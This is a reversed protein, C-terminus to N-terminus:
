AKHQKNLKLGLGTSQSKLCAFPLYGDGESDSKEDSNDSDVNQNANKLVLNRNFNRLKSLGSKIEVDKTSPTNNLFNVISEYTLKEAETEALSSGIKPNQEEFKSIDEFFWETFIKCIESKEINTILKIQFELDYVDNLYELQLFPTSVNHYRPFNTLKLTKEQVNKLKGSPIQIFAM